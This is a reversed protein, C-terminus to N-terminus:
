LLYAFLWCDAVVVRGKPDCYKVASCLSVLSRFIFRGIEMLVARHRTLLAMKSLCCLSSRVLNFAGSPCYM